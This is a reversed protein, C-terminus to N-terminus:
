TVSLLPPSSLFYRPRVHKYNGCDTQEESTVEVWSLDAERQRAQRYYYFTSRLSSTSDGFLMVTLKIISIM